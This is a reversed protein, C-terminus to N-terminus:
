SRKEPSVKTATVKSGTDLLANPSLVVQDDISLGSLVEITNGLNRGLRVDRYEVISNQLIAVRAGAASQTVASVPVLVPPESRPLRLTVTGLMGSPIRNGPNPLRLEARMVGAEASIAQASRTVEASFRESPLEAFSVTGEVGPRIQFAVNQPVDIVVRLPDLSNIEFLPAASSADAVVRDGREVNRAVITGPFPARISQFSQRERAAALRAKAAQTAAVAVNYHAKRDNHVQVSIAGSGILADAREFNLKALEEDAQAKALVAAAERVAEDIEPTSIVALVQNAEVRDGIDARQESVFGSARAYLRASEGAMMRAPLRLEIVSAGLKPQVALVEPPKQPSTSEAATRGCAALVLAVSLMAAGRVLQFMSAIM